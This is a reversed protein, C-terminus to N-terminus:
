EFNERYVVFAFVVQVRGGSKNTESDMTRFSAWYPGSESHVLAGLLLHAADPRDADMVVLIGEVLVRLSTRSV